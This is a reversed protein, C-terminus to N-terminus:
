NLFVEGKRGLEGKFNACAATSLHNASSENQKWCFLIIQTKLVLPGAFGWTCKGLCM